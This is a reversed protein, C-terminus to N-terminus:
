KSQSNRGVVVLRSIMPNWGGDAWTAGDTGITRQFIATGSLWIRLTPPPDTVNPPRPLIIAQFTTAGPPVDLQINGQDWIQTNLDYRTFILKNAAGDRAVAFLFIYPDGSDITFPAAGVIATVQEGTFGPVLDWFTQQYDPDSGNKDYASWYVNGSHAAVAFMYIMDHRITTPAQSCPGEGALIQTTAECSAIIKLTCVDEFYDLYTCAAQRAQDPTFSPNNQVASVLKQFGPTQYKRLTPDLINQPYMFVLIAARWTAYSGMWSWEEDFSPSSITLGDAGEWGHWLAGEWWNHWLALDGGVVFVDLVGNGRASAGPGSGPHVYGGLSPSTTASWAGAASQVYHIHSVASHSDCIFLDLAGPGGSVIAPGSTFQGGLPTWGSWAGNVFPCHWLAGDSGRAFLDYDGTNTLGIGPPWNAALGNTPQPGARAVPVAFGWYYKASLADFGGSFQVIGGDPGIAFVDFNGEDQSSAAPASRMDGGFSNWSSASQGDYTLHWLANDTGRAFVEVAGPMIAIVSPASTINGGFM